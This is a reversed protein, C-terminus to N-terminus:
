ASLSANGEENSLMVKQLLGGFNIFLRSVFIGDSEIKRMVKKRYRVQYDTSLKAVYAPRSRSLLVPRTM